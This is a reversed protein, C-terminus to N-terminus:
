IHVFVCNAKRSAVESVVYTCTDLCVGVRSKDEVQEIM